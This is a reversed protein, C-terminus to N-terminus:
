VYLGMTVVIGVAIGTLVRFRYIVHAIVYVYFFAAAFHWVILWQLPMPIDRGMVVNMTGATTWPAGGSMIFFVFGTLLATKVVAPLSVQGRARLEQHKATEM